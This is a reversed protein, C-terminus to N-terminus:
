AINGGVFEIRVCTVRKVLVYHVSFVTSPQRVHLNFVNIVDAIWEVLHTIDSDSDSNYQQGIREDEARIEAKGDSWDDCGRDGDGEPQIM